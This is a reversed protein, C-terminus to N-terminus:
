LDAIASWNLQVMGDDLDREEKGTYILIGGSQRFVRNFWKLGKIQDSKIKEAAKIEIPILEDNKEVMLDVENGMSDRLYYIKGSQDRNMRNKKVEAVVFNEFINGYFKSKKLGSESKIELLQCLLGTDYFYLKSTKVLRKNFNPSYPPLKFLIYSSELLTMWSDITKSDVKLDNAINSFNVLQGVRSACAKLFKEFVILNDINKIQRVDREVYTRIYNEAWRGISSKKTVVDPYFGSYILSVLSHPKIRNTNLENLSFPTLEIYGVRGALSQSINEQMLFNNSGSLIFQFNKKRDDVVEQLYNFLHPVKQVEDFIAGDPYKALFERPFRSAEFATDPNELNVYPKSKFCSKCLTTKGSQRPGTVCVIKFEKATQLAEAKLNRQLKRNM